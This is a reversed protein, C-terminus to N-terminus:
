FAPGEEAWTEDATFLFHKAYNHVVSGDPAVWLQSNYYKTSGSVERAEAYGCVVYAKLTVAWKKCFEYTPGQNAKELYPMIDERSKFIYGAFAIEPLLVIDIADEESFQKIISEARQISTTPDKYAPEFQLILVKAAKSSHDM